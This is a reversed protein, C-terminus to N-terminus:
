TKLTLIQQFLTYVRDTYVEDTFQQLVTQKANQAINQIFNPNSAVAQFLFSMKEALDHDTGDYLLGNQLHTILEPTAGSNNGIVIKQYAMAEATVRGMAENPSCMLVCFATQYYPAPDATFGLMEVVSSLKNRQIYRQLYATYDRRGNGIIQLKIARKKHINEADNKTYNQYFLHFARLAQLQNKSPHLLGIILFILPKETDEISKDLTYISSEIIKRKGIGNFISVIQAPSIKYDAQIHSAISKSIAIIAAAQQLYHSMFPRGVLFFLQYDLWGYERIHWVHPVNIKEALWAGIAVVSSNSHIIDPQFDLAFATYEPLKQKTKLWNLPFLYFGRARLSYAANAFFLIRYAINRERLAATFAGERPCWVEIIVGKVQLGELLHLLSRNAGLLDAYHTITLLRM